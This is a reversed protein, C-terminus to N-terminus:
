IFFRIELKPDASPSRGGIQAKLVSLLMAKCRSAHGNITLFRILGMGGAKTGRALLPRHIKIEIAISQPSQSHWKWAALM